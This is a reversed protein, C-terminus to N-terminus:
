KESNLKEIIERIVNASEGLLERLGNSPNGLKGKTYLFLTRAGDDYPLEPVELCTNRITYIMHDYGFPDFPMIM